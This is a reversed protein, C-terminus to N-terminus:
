FLLSAIDGEIRPAYVCDRYSDLGPRGSGIMAAGRLRQVIPSRADHWPLPLAQLYDEVLRSLMTGNRECYDEAIGLAVADLLLNKARKTSRKGKAAM